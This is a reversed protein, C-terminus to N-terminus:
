MSVNLSLKMTCDWNRGAYDGAQGVKAAAQGHGVKAAAQGHGVTGAAQGHGV